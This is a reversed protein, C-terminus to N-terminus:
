EPKITWPQLKQEQRLRAALAEAEAQTEVFVRVRYLTKGNVEVPLVVTELQYTSSLSKVAAEAEARNEFAGIQVAYWPTTAPESSGPHASESGPAARPPAMVSEAEPQPQSEFHFFLLGGIFVLIAVLVLIAYHAIPLKGAPAPKAVGEEGASLRAKARRWWDVFIEWFRTDM